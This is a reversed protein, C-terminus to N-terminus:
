VLWDWTSPVFINVGPEDDTANTDDPVLNSAFCAYTVHRGNASIAPSDSRENAQTADSAVLPNPNQRLNDLAAHPDKRRDMDQHQARALDASQQFLLLM